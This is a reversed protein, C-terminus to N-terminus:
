QIRRVEDIGIGQTRALEAAEQKLVLWKLPQAAEVRGTEGVDIGQVRAAEEARRKEVDMQAARDSEFMQMARDFAAQSGIQQIDGTEARSKAGGYRASCSSAIRM